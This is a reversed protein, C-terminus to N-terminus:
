GETVEMSMGDPYKDNTTVRMRYTNGPTVTHSTSINGSTARSHVVTWTGNANRVEVYYTYTAGYSGWSGFLIDIMNEQPVFTKSVYPNAISIPVNYDYVLTKVARVEVDKTDAALTPIPPMAVLLLFTAILTCILNRKRKFM